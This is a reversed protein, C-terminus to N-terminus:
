LLAEMNTVLNPWKSTAPDPFCTNKESVSLRIPKVHLIKLLSVANLSAM